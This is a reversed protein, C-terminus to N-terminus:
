HEPLLSMRDKSHVWPDAKSQESKPLQQHVYDESNSATSTYLLTDIDLKSLSNWVFFLPPREETLDHTPLSVMEEAGPPDAPTAAVYFDGRERRRTLYLVDDAATSM